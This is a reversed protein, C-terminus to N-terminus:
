WFFVCQFKIESRKSGKLEDLGAGILTKGSFLTQAWRCSIECQTKKANIHIPQKIRMRANFYYRFGKDYFQPLSFSNPLDQEFAYIRADYSESEFYQTRLSFRYPKRPPNCFLEIYSLMGHQNNQGDVKYVAFETRHHFSIKNRDFSMIIQMRMNIRRSPVIAHTENNSSDNIQKCSNRYQFTLSTEKSPQYGVQILWDNGASPADVRYRLWPFKFIDYYANFNWGHLPTLAIGFYCGLENNPSSGETFANSYLSQYAKQINRFLMSCSLDKTLSVLAGNIWAFSRRKDMAMEGFIHMNRITLSYDISANLWRNGTLAYLNYPLDRKQIPTSFNYHVFNAGLELSRDSWKLNGGFLIERTNNRDANESPTRHYGSNEFSSIIETNVTDFDRNTSLYRLSVFESSSWNKKQLSIAIGRHLNFEGASHYPKIAPGQRKVAMVGASKTFAMSQWKILGQGLNATYDGLALSRIIGANKVFFHFSYFDFGFRQKGRFFEEGADKDGVIGYQLINKYNYTYRFFIKQPSGLYHAASDGPSHEFGKAKELIQSARVLMHHDGGRWRRSIRETLTEEGYIIIYPMLQRILAADWGPVAQLEYVSILSGLLKRYRLFNDIQLDTLVELSELQEKGARNLNLRHLRYEELTQLNGDDEVEQDTKEALSEMQNEFINPQESDQSRAESFALFMGIALIAIIRIKNAIRSKKIGSGIMNRGICKM